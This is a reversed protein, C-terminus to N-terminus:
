YPVTHVPNMQSLVPVCSPIKYARYQVKPDWVVGPIKQSASCGNAERSLNNQISNSV